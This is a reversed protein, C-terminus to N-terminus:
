LYMLPDQSWLFRHVHQDLLPVSVMHYMKAIDGVFAVPNERFRLLVGFLNNLLDPGKYWYENLVHGEYSASTNFVIRTPTSKKEPRIVAHHAIYHVPGQWSKIESEDLKKAFGMEELEKIQNDYDDAYQPNRQLRRETSELKKYVQDYNDPLQNPDRKWPYGIIWSNSNQNFECSDEILKLENRDQMTLESATCNCPNVAVGMSETKWFETLDVPKALSVFLINNKEAKASHLPRM